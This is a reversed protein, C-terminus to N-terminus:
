DHRRQQQPKNYNEYHKTKLPKKKGAAMKGAQSKVQIIYARSKRLGLNRAKYAVNHAAVGIFNSIDKNSIDAYLRRLTAIKEDDWIRVQPQRGFERRRRASERRVKLRCERCQRGHAIRGMTRYYFSEVPVEKGCKPCIKTLKM